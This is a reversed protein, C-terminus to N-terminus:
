LFSLFFLLPILTPAIASQRWQVRPRQIEAQMWLQELCSSVGGVLVKKLNMLRSGSVNSKRRVEKVVDEILESEYRDKLEWGPLNIVEILAKRWTEVKEINDRFAEEQKTLAEEFNGRQEREVAPDVDYFVPIVMQGLRSKCEVIKILEDLCWSSSAYNKSLVVISIRSKEIADLLELSLPKGIELEKDDRFVNIGKCTLATYLHGTFGKRTDEGRFSLFVEYKWGSSSSSGNSSVRPISM